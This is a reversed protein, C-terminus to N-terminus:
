PNFSSTAAAAAAAVAAAAPWLLLWCSHFCISFLTNRLLNSVNINPQSIQHLKALRHWHLQFRSETWRCQVQHRRSFGKFAKKVDIFNTKSMLSLEKKSMSSFKRAWLLLPRSAVPTWGGIAGLHFPNLCLITQVPHYRMRHSWNRMLIPSSSSPQPLSLSSPQPYLASTNCNKPNGEGQRRKIMNKWKSEKM